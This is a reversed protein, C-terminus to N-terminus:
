AILFLGPEPSLFNRRERKTSGPFVRFLRAERLNLLIPTTANGAAAQGMSPVERALELTTSARVHNRM